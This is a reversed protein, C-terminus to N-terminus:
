AAEVRVGYKQSWYEISRAGATDAGNVYDKLKQIFEKRSTLNQTVICMCNPHRDFGRITEATYPGGAAYEPCKCDWHERGSQMVWNYTGTCAPNAEGAELTGEQVGSGLETRVLRLARYDVGSKGLRAIYRATGPKLEGWRGITKIGGRVYAQLDRAIAVPDRGQAIGASTISRVRDLWDGYVGIPKGAANYKGWVRASYGVGKYVNLAVSAIVKNNIGAYVSSLGTLSVSAMRAASEIYEKEVMSVYDLGTNLTRNVSQDTFDAIIQASEYLQTEIDAWRQATLTSLGRRLTSKLVEGAQKAAATYVALLHKRESLTLQAMKRRLSAYESYYEANTV